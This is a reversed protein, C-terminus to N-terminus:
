VNTPYFVGSWNWGDGLSVLSVSDGQEAFFVFERLAGGGYSSNTYGTIASGNRTVTLSSALGNNVAVIIGDSPLTYTANRQNNAFIM